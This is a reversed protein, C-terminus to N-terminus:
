NAIAPTPAPPLEGTYTAIEPWRRVVWYVGLLCGVGGTVVAVVPGFLDAALGAEFEGLQPGGIFFLQNVSTMRGRLQDPTRLQRITNRIITSVSDGAGVLALAVFSLWFVSAFGFLITALGYVAVSALLVPGQRKIEHMQSVVLGALSSGVAQASSLWGYGIADVHLIDRAYIPLLASASSFFTAVFDLVMSSLIIPHQRIFDIGERIAARGVPKPKTSREQPVAGIAVIAFLMGFYTFGNILYTYPQGLDPAALIWGSLAPGAISAVTFAISMMSFANPLDAAPVLNPVLSQRAPLDFAQACAEIFTLLYLHWLEVQGSLTLLGLAFAVATQISQTVFLIKRRDFTDALAGAVLSLGAIPILRVAGVLGLAIPRDTLTSIHWLMAFFQMRSGAVSITLGSWLLVFKRHRLSPPLHLRM